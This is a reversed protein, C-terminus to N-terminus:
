NYIKIFLNNIKLCDKKISCIRSEVSMIKGHREPIPFRVSFINPFNEEPITSCIITPIKEVVIAADKIEKIRGM